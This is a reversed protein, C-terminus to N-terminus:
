SLPTMDLVTLKGLWVKVPCAEGELHKVLVTYMRECVPIPLCHLNLDSGASHLMHDPDVSNM